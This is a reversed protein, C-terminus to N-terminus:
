FYVVPIKTNLISQIENIFEQNQFQMLDSKSHTPWRTVLVAIGHYAPNLEADSYFLEGRGGILLFEQVDMLIDRDAILSARFVDELQVYRKEGHISVVELKEHDKTIWKSFSYFDLKTHSRSGENKLSPLLFRSGLFSKEVELYFSSRKAAEFLELFSMRELIPSDNNRSIDVYEAGNVKYSRGYVQINQEPLGEFTVGLNRSLSKFQASTNIGGRSIKNREYAKTYQQLLQKQSSSPGFINSCKLNHAYGVSSLISIGLISVVTFFKIVKCM